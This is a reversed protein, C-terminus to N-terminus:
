NEYSRSIKELMENHGETDKIIDDISKKKKVIKM